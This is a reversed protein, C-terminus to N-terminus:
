TIELPNVYLMIEQDQLESALIMRGPRITQGSISELALLLADPCNYTTIILTLKM